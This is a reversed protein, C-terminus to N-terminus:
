RNKRAVVLIGGSRFEKMFNKGLIKEAVKGKIGRKLKNIIGEESIIQFGLNRLIEKLDSFTFYHIHGGDYASKNESTIPFHGKVILQFLYDSFRINPASLILKGELKLVRFIDKLLKIPDRIHEIVDLCIVVDFYNDGYPIRENDLDICKTIIGKNAARKLCKVSKDLGYTKTVRNRVFDIIFGEGCGVDLLRGCKNVYKSAVEIREGVKPINEGM